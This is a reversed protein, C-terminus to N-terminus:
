KWHKKRCGGFPEDRGAGKLDRWAGLVGFGVGLEAEASVVGKLGNSM